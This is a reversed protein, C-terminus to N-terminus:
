EIPPPLAPLHRSCYDNGNGAVRFELDPDSQESKGCVVCRHLPSEEPATRRKSLARVGLFGAIIAACVALAVWLGLTPSQKVPASSVTAAPMVTAAPKPSPTSSLGDSVWKAPFAIGYYLLDDMREVNALYASISEAAVHDARTEYENRLTLRAGSKTVTHTFLFAPDDVRTDEPNLNLEWPLNVEMIHAVKKPYRLAFPTTRVPSNPRQILDLLTRSNFEGHISKKDEKNPTWFGSIYYTEDAVIVNKERDDRFRPPDVIQVKPFRRAYYNLYRKRIVDLSNDAIFARMGDAERGRSTTRVHLTAAGDFDQFDYTDMVELATERFGAPQIPTLATIEPAIVLAEGFAPFYMEELKGGQDGNTADLWFERGHLRLYVVLHDFALPSPLWDAVTKRLETSVLTPSADFGLKRLMTCLLLAKDKCDGFRRALITEIPYPKHSNAGVEIGLYRINDQVYRLAAVVRSPESQLQAIKQIERDLEEPVINPAQYIDSAWRAVAGWSEFESLEVRSWPDFWSPVQGDEIVAPVDHQDWVYEVVPGHKSVVPAPGGGFDKM